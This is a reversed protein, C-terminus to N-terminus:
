LPIEIVSGKIHEGEILAINREKAKNINGVWRYCMSNTPKNIKDNIISYMASLFLVVDNGSYLAYAGNCGADRSVFETSGKKIYESEKILNHKYLMTDRNLLGDINPNNTPNIYVLHGAIAFPELWLVMIPVVLMKNKVLSMVFQESMCDGMCLFLMSCSNFEEINIEIVREISDYFSKIFIDPRKERLYEEMSYVKSQHIYKVGHIHRGINEPQIIEKDVLLFGTNSWGSLFYCLNSGVSGLGAVAFKRAEVENGVTRQSIRSLSYIKGSFRQLYNNRKEFRTLEDYASLKRFGKRKESQFPIVVGGIYNTKQLRFAIKIYRKKELEKKLLKLDEIDRIMNELVMPTISYPPTDPIEVSNLYLVESDEFGPKKRIYEKFGNEINDTPVIIHHYQGEETSLLEYYSWVNLIQSNNPFDGYFLWDEDVYSEGPYKSDWYSHLEQIFDDKNERKAGIEILQKAKKICNHLLAVPENPSYTSGDEFLCLKRSFYDIHPIYDYKTDFYYVEPCEYPFASTFGIYLEIKEAMSSVSICTHVKWCEVYFSRTKTPISDVLFVDEVKSIENFCNNILEEKLM